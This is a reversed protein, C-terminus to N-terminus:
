LQNGHKERDRERNTNARLLSVTPKKLEGFQDSPQFHTFTPRHTNVEVVQGTYELNGQAIEFTATSIPPAGYENTPTPYPTTPPPLSPQPPGYVKAPTHELSSYSVWDFSPPSQNVTVEGIGRGILGILLMIKLVNEMKSM